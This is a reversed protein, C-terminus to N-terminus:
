EKLLSSILFDLSEIYIFNKNESISNFNNLIFEAANTKILVNIVKQNQNMSNMLNDRNTESLYGCYLKALTTNNNM